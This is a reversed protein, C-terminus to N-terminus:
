PDISRYSPIMPYRILQGKWFTWKFNKKFVSEELSVMTFQELEPAVRHACKRRFRNPRNPRRPCFLQSSTDSKDNGQLLIHLSTNTGQPLCVFLHRFCGHNRMCLIIQLHHLSNDNYNTVKNQLFLCHSLQYNSKLYKQSRAPQCLFRTTQYHSEM